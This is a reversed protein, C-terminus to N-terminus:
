RRRGAVVLLPLAGSRVTAKRKTLGAAGLYGPLNSLACRLGVACTPRPSNSLASRAEREPLAPHPRQRRPSQGMSVARLDLLSRLSHITQMLAGNM